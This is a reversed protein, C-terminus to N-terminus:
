NVDTCHGIHVRFTNVTCQGTGYNAIVYLLGTNLHMPLTDENGDSSGFDGACVSAMLSLDTHLLLCTCTSNALNINPEDSTNVSKCFM